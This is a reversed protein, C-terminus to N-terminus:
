AVELGAATWEPRTRLEAVPLDALRLGLRALTAQYASLLAASMEDPALEAEVHLQGGEVFVEHAFPDLCPHHEALRVSVLRWTEDLPTVRHTAAILDTWFPLMSAPEPASTAAPPAAPASAGLETLLPLALCTAGEAPREGGVVQGGAWFSVTEGCLLVGSFRHHALAAEHTPWVGDLAQLPVARSAWILEAVVPDLATLTVAARPLGVMAAPWSVESSATFGGQLAGRVWVFRAWQEGQQMDFVASLGQAQRMALDLTVEAWPYYDTHLGTYAAQQPPVALRPYPM